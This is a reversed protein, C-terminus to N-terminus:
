YQIYAGNMNLDSYHVVAKNWDLSVFGHLGWTQDICTYNKDSSTSLELSVTLAGFYRSVTLQEHVTLLNQGFKQLIGRYLFSSSKLTEEVEGFYVWFILTRISGDKKTTEFEFGEEVHIWRWCFLSMSYQCNGVYIRPPPPPPPPESRVCIVAKQTLFSLVFEPVPPTQCPVRIPLPPLTYMQTLYYWIVRKAVWRFIDGPIRGENGPDHQQFDAKIEEYKQELIRKLKPLIFQINAQPFDASHKEMYNVAYEDADILIFQFNHFAM